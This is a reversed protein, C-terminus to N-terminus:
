KAAMEQDIHGLFDVVNGNIKQVYNRTEEFPPIGNYKRVNGMGCNYAAFTIQRADGQIKGRAILSVAEEYLQDMYRRQADLSHVPNFPDHLGFARATAPMFQSLGKAGMYSVANPNFQSEQKVQAALELATFHKSPKFLVAIEPPIDATKPLVTRYDVKPKEPTKPAPKEKKPEEKPAAKPAVKPKDKPAQKPAPVLVKLGKSIGEVGEGGAYFLLIVRKLVEPNNEQHIGGVALDKLHKNQKGWGNIHIHNSHNTHYTIRDGLGLNPSNYLINKFMTQDGIHSDLMKRFVRKELEKNYNKNTISHDMSQSKNIWFIPGDATAHKSVVQCSMVSSVDLNPGAHSSHGHKATFDGFRICSNELGPIGKKEMEFNYAISMAQAVIEVRAFANMDPTEPHFEWNLGPINLVNAPPMNRMGLARDAESLQYAKFIPSYYVIHNLPGHDNTKYAHELAQQVAVIDAAFMEEPTAPREVMKPKEPAKPAPEAPKPEVPKETTTPPATIPATTSPVTPTPEVPVDPLDPLPPYLPKGIPEVPEPETPILTTGPPVIGEAVAAVTSTDALKPEIKDYIPIVVEGDPSQQNLRALERTGTKSLGLHTALADTDINTGPAVEVVHRGPIVARGVVWGDHIDNVSAIADLSAGYKEALEEASVPQDLHIVSSKINGGVVTGPQILDKKNLNPNEKLLQSVPMQLDNAIVKLPVATVPTYNVTATALQVRPIVAEAKKPGYEASQVKPEPRVAASPMSPNGSMVIATALVSAMATTTIKAAGPSMIPGEPLGSASRLFSQGDREQDSLPEPVARAPTDSSTGFNVAKQAALASLPAAVAVLARATSRLSNPDFEVYGDKATSGSKEPQPDDKLDWDDYLPTSEADLRYPALQQLDGDGSKDDIGSAMDQDPSKSHTQHDSTGWRPETPYVLKLENSPILGGILPISGETDFDDVNFTRETPPRRELIQNLDPGRHVADFDRDFEPEPLNNAM